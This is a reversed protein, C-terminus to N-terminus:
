VLLEVDQQALTLIGDAVQILRAQQEGQTALLETMDISDVGVQCAAVEVFAQYQRQQEDSLRSWHIPEAPLHTRWRHQAHGAHVAIYGLLNTARALIDMVADFGPQTDTLNAEAQDLEIRLQDDQRRSRRALWALTGAAFLPSAASALFGTLLLTGATIGTRGAVTSGGLLARTARATAAAQPVDPATGAPAPTLMAAAVVASYAAEHDAENEAAAAGAGSALTVTIGHAALRRRLTAEATPSLRDGNHSPVARFAPPTPLGTISSASRVLELFFDDRASDHVANFARGRTVAQTNRRDFDGQIRRMRDKTSEKVSTSSSVGGLRQGDLREPQDSRQAGRTKLEQVSLGLAKAIGELRRPGPRTVGNEIRSMSVGAGTRYGARRGLQEQSLKPTHAERLERIVQGLGEASYDM